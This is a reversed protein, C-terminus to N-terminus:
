SSLSNDKQQTKKMRSTHDHTCTLVHINKERMIPMLTPSVSSLCTFSYFLLLVSSVSVMPAQTFACFLSTLGQSGALHSSSPVGLGEGVGGGHVKWQLGLGKIM